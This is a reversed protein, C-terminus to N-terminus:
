VEYELTILLIRMVVPVGQDVTTLAFLTPVLALCSCLWVVRLWNPLRWGHSYARSGLM